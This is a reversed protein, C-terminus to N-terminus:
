PEALEGHLDHFARMGLRDFPSSRGAFCTLLDPPGAFAVFAARALSRGSYATYLPNSILRVTAM